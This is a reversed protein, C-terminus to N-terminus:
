LRFNSCCSTTVQSNVTQVIGFIEKQSRVPNQNVKARNAKEANIELEILIEREPNKVKARVYASTNGLKVLPANSSVRHSNLFTLYLISEAINTKGEGNKGVFISIGPNLALDLNSYSRYNTLALNTILV